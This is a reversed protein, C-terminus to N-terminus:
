ECSMARPGHAAPAPLTFSVSRPASSAQLQPSNNSTHNSSSNSDSDSSSSDDEDTTAAPSAIDAQPYVHRFPPLHEAAADDERQAHVAAAHLTIASRSELEDTDAPRIYRASRQTYQQAVSPAHRRVHMRQQGLLAINANSQQLCVALRSHAHRMFDRESRLPSYKALINLLRVADKAVGGYTEM